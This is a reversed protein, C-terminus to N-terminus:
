LLRVSLHTLISSTPQTEGSRKIRVFNILMLAYNRFFKFSWFVMYEHLEGLDDLSFLISLVFMMLVDFILMTKAMQVMIGFNKM